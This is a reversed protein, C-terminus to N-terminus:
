LKEKARLLEGLWRYLEAKEQPTLADIRKKVESLRDKVQTEAFVVKTRGRYLDCKFSGLATKGILSVSASDPEKVESKVVTGDLAKVEVAIGRQERGPTFVAEAIKEFDVVMGNKLPLSKSAGYNRRDYLQPGIGTPTFSFALELESVEV